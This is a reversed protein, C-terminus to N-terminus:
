PRKLRIMTAAVAEEYTPRPRSEPIDTPVTLLKGEVTALVVWLGCEITSASVRVVKM